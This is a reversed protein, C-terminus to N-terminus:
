WTDNGGSLAGCRGCDPSSCSCYLCSDTVTQKNLKDPITTHHREYVQQRLLTIIESSLQKKSLYALSGLAGLAAHERAWQEHPHLALSGPMGETDLYNVVQAM